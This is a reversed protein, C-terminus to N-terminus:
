PSSAGVAHTEGADRSSAGCRAPSPRKSPTSSRTPRSKSFKPAGTRGGPRRARDLWNVTGETMEIGWKPMTVAQIRASVRRGEARPPHGGRDEAAGARLARELAPSFPVPSHPPTVMEVPAQLSEFAAQQRGHRRHRQAVSCRPPSEDVMVLRGTNEVSELIHRRM